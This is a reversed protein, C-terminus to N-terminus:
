FDVPSESRKVVASLFLSQETSRQPIIELLGHAAKLVDHRSIQGVLKGDRLVPLRRYPTGLFIQAIRLLDTEEDITKAHTDMFSSVSLDLGEREAEALWGETPASDTSTSKQERLTQERRRVFPALHHEAKLVDRRSIQGLLKGERVVPLRRYPTDIFVQTITMLDTEESIIRGRATNMFAGVKTTPMQDYAADMLVRMSTKESFVGLFNGAEDIVPAGSIHHNLLHGIAEFVDMDPRLAVLRTVMFEKALVRRFASFRRAWDATARLVRMCCKESFVGLYTGDPEIVPGGSINHRILQAMGDIVHSDPAFTVLQTVMIDKALATGQM